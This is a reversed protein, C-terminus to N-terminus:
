ELHKIRKPAIAQPIIEKIEKESPKNGSRM